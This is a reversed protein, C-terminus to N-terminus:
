RQLITLSNPDTAHTAPKERQKLKMKTSIIEQSTNRSKEKKKPKKVEDRLINLKREQGDDAVGEVREIRRRMDM